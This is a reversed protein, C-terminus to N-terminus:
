ESKDDSPIFDKYQNDIDHLTQIKSSYQPIEDDGSYQSESPNSYGFRAFFDSNKPMHVQVVKNHKLEDIVIM